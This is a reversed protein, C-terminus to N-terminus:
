ARERRCITNMYGTMEVAWLRGDPDFDIVVPDQIMPESAVLEVNYGPPLTFTKMSDAPSLVPTQGTATRSEAGAPSAPPSQQAIVGATSLLLVALAYAKKM